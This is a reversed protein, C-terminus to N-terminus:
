ARTASNTSATAESAAAKPRTPELGEARVMMPHVELRRRELELKDLADCEPPVEIFEANCRYGTLLLEEEIRRLCDRDRPIFDRMLGMVTDKFRHARRARPTGARDDAYFDSRLKVDDINSM